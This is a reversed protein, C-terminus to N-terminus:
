GGDTDSAPVVNNTDYWHAGDEVPGDHGWRERIANM